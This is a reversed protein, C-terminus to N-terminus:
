SQVPVIEYGASPKLDFREVSGERTNVVLWRSGLLDSRGSLDGNGILALRARLADAHNDAVAGDFGLTIGTSLGTVLWVPNRTCGRESRNTTHFIQSSQPKTFM